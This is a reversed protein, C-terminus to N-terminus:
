FNEEITVSATFATGSIANQLEGTTELREGYLMV